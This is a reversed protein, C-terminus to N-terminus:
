NVPYLICSPLTGLDVKELSLTDDSSIYGTYPNAYEDEGTVQINGDVVEMSQISIDGTDVKSISYDDIDYRVIDLNMTLIYWSGDRLASYAIYTGSNLLGAGNVVGYRTGILSEGDSSILTGQTCASVGADTSYIRKEDSTRVFNISKNWNTSIISDEYMFIGDDNFEGAIFPSNAICRLMYRIEYETAETCKSDILKAKLADIDIESFSASAYAGQTSADLSLWKLAAPAWSYPKSVDIPFAIPDGDKRVDAYYDITVGDESYSTAGGYEAISADGALTWQFIIKGPNGYEVIESQDNMVYTVGDLTAYFLDLGYNYSLGSIRNSLYSSVKHIKMDTGLVRAGDDLLMNGYKDVYTPTLCTAMTTLSLTGDVEECILTKDCNGLGVVIRSGAGIANSYGGGTHLDAMTGEYDGYGIDTYPRTYRVFGDGGMVDYATLGLQDLSGASYINGTKKSLIYTSGFVEDIGYITSDTPLADDVFLPFETALQYFGIDEPMRKVNFAIFEGLDMMGRLQITGSSEGDEDADESSSEESSSTGEASKGEASEDASSNGDESIPEEDSTESSTIESSQDGDALLAMNLKSEDGAAVVESSEKRETLELVETEGPGKEGVLYFPNDAYDINPRDISAAKLLDMYAHAIDQSGSAEGTEADAALLRKVRTKKALTTETEVSAYGISSYQSANKLRFKTLDITDDGGDDPTPEITDIYESEEDDSKKEDSYEGIEGSDSGVFSSDAESKLGSSNDPAPTAACSAIFLASILLAMVKNHTM